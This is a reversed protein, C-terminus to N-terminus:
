SEDKELRETYSKIAKKEDVIFDECLYYRGYVIGYWINDHNEKSEIIKDNVCKIKDIDDLTILNHEIKYNMIYYNEALEPKQDIANGMLFGIMVLLTLLGIFGTITFIFSPIVRGPTGREYKCGIKGSIITTLLCPVIIIIFLFM